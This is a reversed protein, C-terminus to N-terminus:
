AAPALETRYPDAAIEVSIGCTSCDLHDLEDDAAATGACFPCEITLM